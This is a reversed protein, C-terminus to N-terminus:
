PATHSRRVPRELVHAAAWTYPKGDEYRVAYRDIMLQTGAPLAGVIEGLDDGWRDRVFRPTELTYVFGKLRHPQQDFTGARVFLYGASTRGLAELLSVTSEDPVNMMIRPLKAAVAHAASLRAVKEIIVRKVASGHVIRDVDKDTAAIDALAYRIQETDAEIGIRIVTTKEDDTQALTLLSEFSVASQSRDHLHPGSENISQSFQTRYENQAKTREVSFTLFAAVLGSLLSLITSAVLQAWSFATGGSSSSGGDAAEKM